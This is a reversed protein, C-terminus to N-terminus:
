NSSEYFYSWSLSVRVPKTERWSFRNNISDSCLMREQGVPEMVTPQIHGDPGRWILFSSPISHVTWIFSSLLNAAMCLLVPYCLLKVPRVRLVLELFYFFPIDHYVHSSLPPQLTAWVANISVNPFIEQHMSAGNCWEPIVIINGKYLGSQLSPM